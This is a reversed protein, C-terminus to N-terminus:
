AMQNVHAALVNMLRAAVDSLKRRPDLYRLEEPLWAISRSFRGLWVLYGVMGEPVFWALTFSAHCDFGLQNTWEYGLAELFESSAELHNWFKMAGIDELRGSSYDVRELLLALEELSVELRVPRGTELDRIADRWQSSPQRELRALAHKVALDIPPAVTLSHQGPLDLCPLLEFLRMNVEQLTHTDVRKCDSPCENHNPTTVAPTHLAGRDKRVDETDRLTLQNMIGAASASTTLSKYTQVTTLASLRFIEGFDLVVHPNGCTRWCM